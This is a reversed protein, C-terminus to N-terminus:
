DLRNWFNKEEERSISFAKALQFELVEEATIPERNFVEAMLDLTPQIETITNDIDLLISNYKKNM